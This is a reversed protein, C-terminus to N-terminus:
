EMKHNTHTQTKKMILVVTSRHGLSTFAGPPNSKVAVYVASPEKRTEITDKKTENITKIKDVAEM